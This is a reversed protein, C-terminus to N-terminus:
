PESPAVESAKACSLGTEILVYTFFKVDREPSLGFAVRPTRRKAIIDACGNARKLQQLPPRPIVRKVSRTKLTVM